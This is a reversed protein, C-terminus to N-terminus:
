NSNLNNSEKSLFFGMYETTIDNSNSITKEIMLQQEVSINFQEAYLLRNETPIDVPLFTESIILQDVKQDWWRNTTEIRKRLDPNKSLQNICKLALPGAIPTYKGICYLSRSKSLLLEDRIKKSSHIYIPNNTWGLRAILEPSIVLKLVNEDFLMGCFKTDRIKEAYKFKIKFGLREFDEAKLTNQDLGFVGDDGEVLGECKILKKNTLYLMNMLNSFSNALSTWMEGSMRTGMTTCKYYKNRLKEVRPKFQGLENKQYYCKMIDSLINPNNRFMYRFLQCEVVDVYQPSFGSEFSSYDTELLYKFKSLNNIRSPLELLDHHKVFWDSKFFNEELLHIFPGVRVKFRDTRSNIFRLCKNEEYFERKVFSKCIFDRRILRPLGGQYMQTHTTRLNEKRSATYHTNSDLWNNFLVDQEGELINFPIMNTNLWNDVFVKLGQIEEAIPEPMEPMLRKTYALFLNDSDYPTTCFPTDYFLPGIQGAYYKIEKPKQKITIDPIETEYTRYPFMIRPLLDTPIPKKSYTVEWDFYEKTPDQCRSPKIDVATYTSSTLTKEVSTRTQTSKVFHKSHM